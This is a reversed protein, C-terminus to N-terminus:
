PSPIIKSLAARKLWGFAPKPFPVLQSSDVSVNGVGPSIFAETTITPKQDVDVAGLVFPASCTLSPTTIM